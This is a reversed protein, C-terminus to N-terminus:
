DQSVFPTFFTPHEKILMECDEILKPFDPDDRGQPYRVELQAMMTVYGHEQEDNIAGKDMGESEARSTLAEAHPVMAEFEVSALEAAECVQGLAVQSGLLRLEDLVPPQALAQAQVQASTLALAALLSPIM